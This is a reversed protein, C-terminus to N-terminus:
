NADVLIEKQNPAPFQQASDIWILLKNPFCIFLPLFATLSQWSQRAAGKFRYIM